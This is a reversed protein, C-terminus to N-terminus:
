RPFIKSYITSLIHNGFIFDRKLFTKRSFSSSVRPINDFNDFNPPISGKDTSYFKEFQLSKAIKLSFEDFEGWQWCFHKPAYGLYNHILEKSALFQEVLRKEREETTEMRSKNPIYEFNKFQSCMQFLKQNDKKFRPNLHNFLRISNQNSDIHKNSFFHTFHEFGHSQFNILGSNFMIDIEEWTLFEDSPYISFDYNKINQLSQFTIEGNWYDSLTKRVGSEGMYATALFITAPINYKALLPFAYVYNDFFGDDFTIIVSNPKLNDIESITAINKNKKFFNLQWEFEKLNEKTVRHYYIIYSTKITM